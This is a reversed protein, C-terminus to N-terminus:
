EEIKRRLSGLEDKLQEIEAEIRQIRYEEVGVTGDCLPFKDCPKGHLNQCDCALDENM